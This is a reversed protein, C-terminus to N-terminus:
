AIGAMKRRKRLCERMEASRQPTSKTAKTLNEKFRNRFSRIFSPRV